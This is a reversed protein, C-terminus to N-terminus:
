AAEVYRPEGRVLHGADVVDEHEGVDNSRHIGAARDDEVSTGVPPIRGVRDVVRPYQLPARGGSFDVRQLAAVEGVPAVAVPAVAVPADERFLVALVQFTHPEAHLGICEGAQSEVRHM